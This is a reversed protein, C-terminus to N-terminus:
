FSEIIIPESTTSKRVRVQNNITYGKFSYDKGKACQRVEQLLKKNTTVFKWAYATAEKKKMM